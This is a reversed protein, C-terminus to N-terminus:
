PRQVPQPPRRHQPQRLAVSAYPSPAHDQCGTAPTLNRRPWFGILPSPPLLLGNVLSIANYATFGNRLSPRTNVAARYARTCGQKTSVACSVAPAARVRDERRGRIELPRSNELLGRACHRCRSRSHTNVSQIWTTGTSRPRVWYRWYDSSEKVSFVLRVRDGAQAIVVAIAPTGAAPVVHLITSRALYNYFMVIRSLFCFRGHSVGSEAVASGDPKSWISFAPATSVTPRLRGALRLASFSPMM